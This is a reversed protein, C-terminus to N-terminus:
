PKAKNSSDASPPKNVPSVAPIMATAPQVPAGLDTIKLELLAADANSSDGGLAEQYETLASKFDKKAYFADGRVEHARPAFAASNEDALTKIAEDPKGQDTLVRALRLRAIRRLETDKSDNMVQTLPAIAGALQGEDVSLRALSLRAQDAYPSKPFDNILALAIRRSTSGDNHELATTMDGFQAAARLAVDNQHSQYHRWGFLLVVGLVVGGVVWLGNEVTWRKVAEWQEDDTLYDEAM